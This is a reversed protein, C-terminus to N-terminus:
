DEFNAPDVKVTGLDFDGDLTLKVRGKKSFEAKSEKINRVYGAASQWFQFELEEGTPLDKIEFKGNEDTKAMYPHDQIVLVASMWPHINCNVQTQRREPEGFSMDFKGGAPIIQNFSQNKPSVSINTNHGEDDKNGVVLKQGTRVFQVHPEFRCNVNDLVVEEDLYNDYAPNIRSPKKRLFIVIDVIGNNEQNVVLQEDPIQHKSCFPTNRIPTIFKPKPAPGDYIFQGTLTAWESSSTSTADPSVVAKASQDASGNIGVETQDTTESDSATEPEKSKDPPAEPPQCGAALTLSVAFCATLIASMRLM